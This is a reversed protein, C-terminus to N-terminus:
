GLVTIDDNVQFTGYLMTKTNLGASEPTFQLDYVYLGAEPNMLASSKKITVVSDEVSIEKPDSSGTQNTDFFNTSSFALEVGVSPQDLDESARVQLDWQGVFSEMSSGFDIQLEFYDGRRCIIDLRTATDLNVVSM